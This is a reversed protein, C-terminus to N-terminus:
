HHPPSHHRTRYEKGSLPVVSPDVRPPDVSLSVVSPQKTRAGKGASYPVRSVVLVMDPAISRIGSLPVVSPDVSLSVVSSQKTRAGKGASYPVRSVVLVMDPAISRVVSLSWVPTWVPHTWVLLCWVPSSPGLM